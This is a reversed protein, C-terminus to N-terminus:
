FPLDGQNNFESRVNIKGSKITIHGFNLLIQTSLSFISECLFIKKEANFFYSVNIKLNQNKTKFIKMEGANFIQGGDFIVDSYIKLIGLVILISNIVHLNDIRLESKTDVFIANALNNNMNSTFTLSHLVVICEGSLAVSTAIIDLDLFDANTTNICVQRPTEIHLKMKQPDSNNERTINIVVNGSHTIIIDGLGPLTLYYGRSVNTEVKQVNKALNLNSNDKMDFTTKKLHLPNTIETLIISSDVTGLDTVLFPVAIKDFIKRYIFNDREM